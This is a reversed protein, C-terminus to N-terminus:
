KQVGCFLPKIQASVASESKKLFTKEPLYCDFCLPYPLDAPFVFLGNLDRLCKGCKKYETEDFQKM